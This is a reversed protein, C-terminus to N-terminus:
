LCQPSASLPTLAPMAHLSPLLRPICSVELQTPLMSLTPTSTDPGAGFCFTADCSSLTDITSM